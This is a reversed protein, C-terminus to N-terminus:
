VATPWDTTARRDFRGALDAEAVRLVRGLTLDIRHSALVTVPVGLLAQGQRILGKIALEFYQRYLFIVPYVLLDQRSREKV